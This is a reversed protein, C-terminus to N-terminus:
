DLDLDLGRVSDDGTKPKKLNSIDSTIADIKEIQQLPAEFFKKVDAKKEMLSSSGPKHRLLSTTDKSLKAMAQDFAAKKDRVFKDDKELLAAKKAQFNKMEKGLTAASKLQILAPKEDNRLVGELTHDIMLSKQEFSSEVEKVSAIMSRLAAQPEFNDGLASFCFSWLLLRM